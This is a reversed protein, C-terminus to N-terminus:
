LVTNESEKCVEDRNSLSSMAMSFFLNVALVAPRTSDFMNLREMLKLAAKKVRDDGHLLGVCLPILGGQSEPLLGVLVQLSAESQLKKEFAQYIALAEEGDMLADSRLWSLYCRLISGGLIGDRKNLHRWPDEACLLTALHTTRLGELRWENAQVRDSVRDPFENANVALEFLSSTYDFLMSRVWQESMGANIGTMLKTSFAEDEQPAAALLAANLFLIFCRHRIEPGGKKKVGLWFANCCNYSPAVFFLPISVSHFLNHAFTRQSLLRPSPKRNPKADELANAEESTLITGTSCHVFFLSGRITLDVCVREVWMILPPYSNFCCAHM